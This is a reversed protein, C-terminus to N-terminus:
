LTKLYAILATLQEVTQPNEHDIKVGDENICLFDFGNKSPSVKIFYDGANFLYQEPYSELIRGANAQLWETTIPTM